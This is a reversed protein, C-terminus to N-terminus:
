SPNDKNHKEIMDNIFKDTRINKINGKEDTIRYFKFLVKIKM